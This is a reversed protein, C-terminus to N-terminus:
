SELAAIAEPVRDHVFPLCEDDLAAVADPTFWRAARADSGASVSGVTADRPVAFGASFLYTTPDTREVALNLPRLPVLHDVPVSLGTEEALERVAARRPDEDYEPHGGPVSWRGSPGHRVLLVRPGTADGAGGAARDVVTVEVVPDANRFVFRECHTCVARERGEFPRREVPRGCDPCYAADHVTM